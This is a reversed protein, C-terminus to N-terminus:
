SPVNWCQKSTVPTAVAKPCCWPIRLDSTNIRVSAPRRCSMALRMDREFNEVFGASQAVVFERHYLAMWDNSVIIQNALASDRAVNKVGNTMMVFIKVSATIGITQM